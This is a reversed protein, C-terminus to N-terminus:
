QRHRIFYHISLFADAVDHQRQLSEFREKLVDPLLERAVKIAAQKREKHSKNPVGTKQRPSLSKCLIGLEKTFYLRVAKNLRMLDWNRYYNVKELLILSKHPIHQVFPAISSNIKCMNTDEILGFHVIEYDNSSFVDAIVYGSIKNGLDISVIRQM